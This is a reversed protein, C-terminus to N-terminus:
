HASRHGVSVCGETRQPEGRLQGTAKWYVGVPLVVKIVLCSAKLINRRGEIEAPCSAPYASFTQM